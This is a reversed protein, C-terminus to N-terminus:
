EAALRVLKGDTTTFYLSGQAAILSDFVPPAELDVSAVQEGDKASVALMIGGHEGNWHAVQEESNEPQQHSKEEMVDRVGAVYVTDGAKCMARALIPYTQSWLYGTPLAQKPAGQKEGKKRKSAGLKLDGVKEKSAAFLHFEMPTTWKWFQPRRGFGFVQEDDHVMIKGAPTVRGATPYGAWGSYFDSGYIWYTRHWGTDDLYGTPSFVHAHNRDQEPPPAGGDAKGTWPKKKLPLRGGDPAFGQSRMYVYGGSASLIDPKAVPMNLWTIYDQHDKGDVKQQGDMKTENILKGTEPDLLVLRVGGDLFMSRGAAAYAVGEYVMVSGHVPWVSELQEYAVMREDVPAVRFRWAMTGDSARLCYVYGDRCGFLVLGGHITPPSDVRGGATFTWKAKGDRADFAHVQHREVAATIVLGGAVVPATLKGGVDISFEKALGEGIPEKRSGSRRNDHRYTPWDNGCAVKGARTGFAEGKELREPLKGPLRKGAGAPALANFGDMKSELYCACPHPPAYVLGNGPVIGYLCAGRVWHNMEWHQKRIDIFEIGVRSTLLWQDTAKGRHCRHHFFYIERDPAFKVKQEGTMLDLGYTHGPEAGDRSDGFWVMGDIVFVDEASRYGSDPHQAAWLKRGSEADLGTITDKAGKTSWGSSITGEGGSILIVKPTAVLTPTYYSSLKAPRAVPESQWKTEGSKRDLCSVRDKEFFYVQGGLVTLTGPVVWRKEKWLLEGDEARIAALTREGEAFWASEPQPGCVVFMVGADLLIETAGETGEYRHLTEGSAADLKVVPADLGLTSYVAGDMAVLRRPLVGPGSKLGFLHNHWSAIERKWLLKGNFADRATLSWGPDTLISWLPGEDVITFIRGGSSVVASVSSMKDHHRSYRPGAVWQMRRPPGALKDHSVANNDPGYLFHTWDDIEGPVPMVTKKGDIIAVGRPALVRNVEAQEVAVGRVLLLNVVNDIFPLRGGAQRGVSVPGYLGRKELEARSAAVESDDAALGHVLFAGGGAIAALLDADPEGVVVALGGTAGASELTEAATRDQAQCRMCPAALMLIGGVVAMWSPSKTMEM